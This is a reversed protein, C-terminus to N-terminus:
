NQNSIEGTRLSLQNMMDAEGSRSSRSVHKSCIISSSSRASDSATPSCVSALVGGAEDGSCGGGGAVLWVDEQDFNQKTSLQMSTDRARFTTMQEEELLELKFGEGGGASPIEISADSLSLMFFLISSQRM